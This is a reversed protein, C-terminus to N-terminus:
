LPSVSININFEKKLFQFYKSDEEISFNWQNIIKNNSTKLIAFQTIDFSMRDILRDNDYIINAKVDKLDFYKSNNAVIFTIKEREQKNINDLLIYLFSNLCNQCAYKSLIIYYHENSPVTKNYHNLFQNFNKSKTDINKCQIFLIVLLLIRILISRSFVAQLKM